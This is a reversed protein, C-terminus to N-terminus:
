RPSGTRLHCPRVMSTLSASWVASGVMQIDADRALLAKLPSNHVVGADSMAQSITTNIFHAETPSHHTGM